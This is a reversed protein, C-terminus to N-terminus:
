GRGHDCQVIATLPVSAATVARTMVLWRATRQNPSVLEDKKRKHKEM